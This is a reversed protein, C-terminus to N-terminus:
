GLLAKGVRLEFAFLPDGGAIIADLTSEIREKSLKRAGLVIRAAFASGATGGVGGGSELAVPVIDFRARRTNSTM